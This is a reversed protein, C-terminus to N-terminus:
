RWPLRLVHPLLRDPSLVYLALEANLADRRSIVPYQSACTEWIADSREDFGSVEELRVRRAQPLGDLVVDVGRLLANAVGVIPRPIRRGQADSVAEIDLLRVYLPVDGLDVWGDRVLVKRAPETVEFALIVSTENAALGSLVAGIGRLLFEPSVVLETSWLAPHTQDGIRVETRIRRAPGRGQGGFPVALAPVVRPPLEIRVDM